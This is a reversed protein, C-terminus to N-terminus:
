VHGAQPYLYYLIMDDKQPNCYGSEIDFHDFRFGQAFCVVVLIMVSQSCNRPRERPKQLPPENGSKRSLPEATRYMERSPLDRTAEMSSLHSDGTMAMSFGHSRENGDGDLVM